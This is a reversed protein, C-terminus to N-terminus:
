DLEIQGQMFSPEQWIGIYLYIGATASNEVFLTWHVPVCAWVKVYGEKNEKNIGEM